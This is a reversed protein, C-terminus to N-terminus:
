DTTSPASAPVNASLRQKQPFTKPTLFRVGDWLAERLQAYSPRTATPKAIFVWTAFRNVQESSLTPLIEQRLCERIRRKLRNRVAARKDVKKSVIFGIKPLYGVKGMATIPQIGTPKTTQPKWHNLGIWTFFSSRYLCRGEQLTKQFLWRANLRLRKPLM